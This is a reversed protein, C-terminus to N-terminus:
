RRRGPARPATALATALLHDAALRALELHTAGDTHRALMDIWAAAQRAARLLEGPRPFGGRAPGAFLCLLVVAMLGRLRGGAIGSPPLRSAVIRPVAM